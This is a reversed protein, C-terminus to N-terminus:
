LKIYHEEVGDAAIVGIFIILAKSSLKIYQKDKQTTMSFNAVENNVNVKESTLTFSGSDVLKGDIFKEFYQDKFKVQTGSGPQYPLSVAPVQGGVVSELKWTGNLTTTSVEKKCSSAVFLILLGFAVKVLNKM